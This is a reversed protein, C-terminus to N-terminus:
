GCYFKWGMGLGRKPPVCGTLRHNETLDVSNLRPIDRLELPIEGELENDSLNLEILNFLNGLEAPIEGELENDGLNLEILNSLNGLEAPIEGELENGGLHLWSLNSLNGLEAPIEGNLENDYLSLGELNSLDGLEPPIEGELENGGLILWALNSLNGLEPPIEGELSNDGLTLERLNSLNGLEAPIEGELRNVSLILERLNSLGGLEPPIRRAVPSRGPFDSINLIELNSLSGLEAPIEGVLEGYTIRLTRLETLEGIQSPITGRRSMGMIKLARVRGDEVTIGDWESIPRDGTWNFFGEGAIIDKIELLTRCDEALGSHGQGSLVANDCEAGVDVAENTQDSEVATLRNNAIKVLVTGQSSGWHATTLVRERVEPRLNDNDIYLHIRKPGSGSNARKSLEVELLQRLDSGDASVSYVGQASTDGRIVSAEFEIRSGDPTWAIEFIRENGFYIEPIVREDELSKEFDSLVALDFIRQVSAGEADAM